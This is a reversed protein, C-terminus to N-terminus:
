KRHGGSMCGSKLFGLGSAVVKRGFQCVTCFFVRCSTYIAFGDQTIGSGNRLQDRSKKFALVWSFVANKLSKASGFFALQWPAFGPQWFPLRLLRTKERRARMM